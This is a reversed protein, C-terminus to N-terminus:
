AVAEPTAAVERRVVGVLRGHGVVPLRSIANDRALRLADAVNM